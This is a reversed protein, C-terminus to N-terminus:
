TYKSKWDTYDVTDKFIYIYVCTCQRWVPSFLLPAGKYLIKPLSVFLSSCIHIIKPRPIFVVPTCAGTAGGVKTGKSIDWRLGLYKSWSVGVTDACILPWEQNFWWALVKNLLIQWNSLTKNLLIEDWFRSKKISQWRNISASVTFTLFNSFSGILSIIAFYTTPLLFYNFFKWAM